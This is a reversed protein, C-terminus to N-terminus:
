ENKFANIITLFMVSKLKQGDNLKSYEKLEPHLKLKLSKKKGLKWGEEKKYELWKNHNEEPNDTPDKLQNQVGKTISNKILKNADKWNPIKETPNLALCITKNAQYAAKAIQEIQAKSFTKM